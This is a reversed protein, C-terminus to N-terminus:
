CPPRHSNTAVQILPLPVHPLFHSASSLNQLYLWCPKSIYQMPHQSLPHTLSLSSDLFSEQVVPHINSSPHPLSLPAPTSSFILKINVNHAELTPVITINWLFHSESLHLRHDMLWTHHQSSGSLIGWNCPAIASPTPSSRPTPVM